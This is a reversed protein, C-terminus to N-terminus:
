KYDIAALFLDEPNTILGLPEYEMLEEVTDFVEKIYLSNLKYELIFKNESKSLYLFEYKM